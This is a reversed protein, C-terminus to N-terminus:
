KLTVCSARCNLGFIQLKHNLIRKLILFNEEERKELRTLRQLKVNSNGYMLLRSMLVRQFTEKFRQLILLGFKVPFNKFLLPSIKKSQKKSGISIVPLLQISKELISKTTLLFLFIYKAPYSRFMAEQFEVRIYRLIKAM